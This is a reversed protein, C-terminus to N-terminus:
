ITMKRSCMIIPNYSINFCVNSSDAIDDKILKLSVLIDFLNMLNLKRTKYLKSSSNLNKRNGIYDERNVVLNFDLHSALIIQM